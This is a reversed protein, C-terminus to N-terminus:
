YVPTYTLMVCEFIVQFYRSLIELNIVLDCNRWIMIDMQFESFPLAKKLSNPLTM